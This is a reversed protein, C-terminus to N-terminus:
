ANEKTVSKVYWKYLGDSVKGESTKILTVRIEDIGKNGKMELTHDVEESNGTEDRLGDSRYLKDLYAM